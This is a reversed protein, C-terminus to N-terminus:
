QGTRRDTARSKDFTDCASSGRGECRPSSPHAGGVESPSGVCDVV